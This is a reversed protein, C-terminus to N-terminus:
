ADVCVKNNIKCKGGGEKNMMLECMSKRTSAHDNGDTVKNIESCTIESNAIHHLKRMLRGCEDVVSRAGKVVRAANAANSAVEAPTMCVNGDANYFHNKYGRFRRVTEAPVVVTSAPCKEFLINNAMSAPTRTLTGDANIEIGSDRLTTLLSGISRGINGVLSSVDEPAGLKEM